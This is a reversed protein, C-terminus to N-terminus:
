LAATLWAIVPKQYFGFLVSALALVALLAGMGAGVPTREPRAISDASGAAVPSTAFFAAKIWVFYYYFSIVV